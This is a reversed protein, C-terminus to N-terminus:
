AGPKPHKVKVAEIQTRMAAEDAGGKWLADLQDEISPYEARRKGKYTNNADEQQLAFHAETMEDANPFDNGEYTARVTDVNFFNVNNNKWTANPRLHRFIRALDVQSRVPKEGAM